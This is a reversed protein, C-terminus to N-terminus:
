SLDFAADATAASGPSRGLSCAGTCPDPGDRPAGVHLVVPGGPHGVRGRVQERGALQQRQVAAPPCVLLVHEAVAVAADAQMAVIPVALALDVVHGEDVLSLLEGGLGTACTLLM